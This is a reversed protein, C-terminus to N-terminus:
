RGRGNGRNSMREHPGNRNGGRAGSRPLAPHSTRHSALMCGLATREPCEEQTSHCSTSAMGRQDPKDNSRLWAMAELNDRFVSCIINESYLEYMRLMGFMADTSAVLAMKGVEAGSNHMAILRIVEASLRTPTARSADVLRSYKPSYHPDAWLVEAADLLESDTVEGELKWFITQSAREIRYSAPM